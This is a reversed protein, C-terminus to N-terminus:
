HGFQSSDKSRRIEPARREQLFVKALRLILLLVCAHLWLFGETYLTFTCHPLLLSPQWALVGLCPRVPLTLGVPTRAMVSAKASILDNRQLAGEVCKYVKDSERGRERERQQKGEEGEGERQRQRETLFM